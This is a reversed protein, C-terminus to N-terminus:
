WDVEIKVYEKVEKNWNQTRFMYLDGPEFDNGYKPMSNNLLFEEILSKLFTTYKNGSGFINKEAQPNLILFGIDVRRPEAAGRSDIM